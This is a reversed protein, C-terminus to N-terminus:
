KILKHANIKIQKYLYLRQRTIGRNRTVIQVTIVDIYLLDNIMKLKIRYWCGNILVNFQAKGISGNIFYYLDLESTNDGDPVDGVYHVREKDYKVDCTARLRLPFKKVRGSDTYPEFYLKSHYTNIESDDIYLIDLIEIEPLYESLEHARKLWQNFYLCDQKAKLLNNGVLPVTGCRNNAHRLDYISTLNMSNIDQPKRTM